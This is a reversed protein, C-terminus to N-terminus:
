SHLAVSHHHPYTHYFFAEIPSHYRLNKRPRTNLLDQVRAVQDEALTAFNSGKPFYQRILGNTRENLGREWSHYPTAFFFNSGLTEAVERHGAFEKGNDSTITHV